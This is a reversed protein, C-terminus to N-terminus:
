AHGDNFGLDFKVLYGTDDQRRRFSLSNRSTRDSFADQWDIDLMIRELEDPEIGPRTCVALSRVWAQAPLPM